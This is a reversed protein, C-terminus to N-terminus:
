SYERFFEILSNRNRIEESRHKWRIEDMNVKAFGTIKGSNVRHFSDAWCFLFCDKWIRATRPLFQKEDTPPKDGSLPPSESFLVRGGVATCIPQGFAHMCSGSTSPFWYRLLPWTRRAGACFCTSAM